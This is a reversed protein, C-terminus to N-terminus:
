LYCGDEGVIILQTTLDNNNLNIFGIEVLTKQNYKKTLLSFLLQRVSHFFTLDAEENKYICIREQNFAM